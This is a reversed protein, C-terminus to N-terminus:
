HKHKDKARRAEALKAELLQKQRAAKQKREEYEEMIRRKEEEM